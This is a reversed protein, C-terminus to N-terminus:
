AIVETKHVYICIINFFAMNFFFFVSDWPLYEDQLLIAAHPHLYPEVSLFVIVIGLSRAAVNTQEWCAAIEAGPCGVVKLNM